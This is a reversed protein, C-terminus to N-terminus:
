ASQLEYDLTSRSFQWQSSDFLAVVDNPKLEPLRRGRDAEFGFGEKLQRFQLAKKRGAQAKQILDNQM